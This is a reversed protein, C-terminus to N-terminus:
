EVSVPAPHVPSVPIPVLAVFHAGLRYEFLLRYRDSMLWRMERTYRAEHIEVPASRHIIMAVEGAELETLFPGQDWLQSEALQSMIFPRFYVSKGAGVVLTADDAVLPDSINAIREVLERHLPLVGRAEDLLTLREIGSTISLVAVAALCLGAVVVRSPRGRPVWHKPFEHASWLGLAMVPELFYNMSSGIKGVSGAAALSALAYLGFLTVRRNRVSDWGMVVLLAAVMPSSQFFRVFFSLARETSFPNVNASVTHFLFQGGTLIQLGIVSIATVAGYVVTFRLASRRDRWLLAVLISLPAALATQKTLFAAACLVAALEIRRRSGGAAVIVVALISLLIASFDPRIVLSWPWQLPHLVVAAAVTLAVWGTRRSGSWGIAVAAALMSLLVLCRCAFFPEIGLTVLAAAVVFFGPTYVLVTYPPSSPDPYLAGGSALRLVDDVSFGDVYDLQATMVTALRFSDVIVWGAAISMLMLVAAVSAM